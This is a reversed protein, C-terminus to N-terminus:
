IKFGSSKRNLSDDKPVVQIKQNTEKFKKVALEYDDDDHHEEESHKEEMSKLLKGTMKKKIIRKNMDDIDHMDEQIIKSNEKKNKRNAQRIEKIKKERQHIIKYFLINLFAQMSLITVLEYYYMLHSDRIYFYFLALLAYVFNFELMYFNLRPRRLVFVGYVIKYNRKKYMQYNFIMFLIFLSIIYFSYYDNYIPYKNVVSKLPNKPSYYVNVKKDPVYKDVVEKADEEAVNILSSTWNENLYKKGNVSYEYTILPSFGSLLNIKDDKSLDKFNFVRKTIVKAQILKYNMTSLKPITDYWTFFCLGIFALVCVIITQVKFSFLEIQKKEENIDYHFDDDDLTIPQTELKLSM